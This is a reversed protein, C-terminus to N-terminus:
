KASKKMIRPCKLVVVGMLIGFLGLAGFGFPFAWVSSFNDIKAENPADPQYLVRIKDGVQCAAPASGVSSTVTHEKGGADRFTFVPYFTTGSDKDERTNLQVVQADAHAAKHVFSWSYVTAGMAILLLLSHIGIIGLGLAERNPKFLPM